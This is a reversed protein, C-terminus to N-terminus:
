CYLLECEHDLEKVSLKQFRRGFVEELSTCVIMLVNEDFSCEVHESSKEASVSSPFNQPFQPFYKLSVFFFTLSLSKKQVKLLFNRCHFSFQMTRIWHFM